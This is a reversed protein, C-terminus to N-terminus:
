TTPQVTVCGLLARLEKYRESYANIRNKARYGSYTFFVDAKSGDVFVYTTLVDQFISSRIANQFREVTSKLADNIQVLRDFGPDKEGRGICVYELQVEGNSSMKPNQLTALCMDLWTAGIVSEENKSMNM